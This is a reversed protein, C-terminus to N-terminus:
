GIASVAPMSGNSRAFVPDRRSGAPPAGQIYVNRPPPTPRSMQMGEVSSLWEESYEAIRYLLAEFDARNTQLVYPEALWRLIERGSVGMRNMASANVSEHYYQWLVLELV